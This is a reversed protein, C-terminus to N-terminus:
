RISNEIKQNSKVASSPQLMFFRLLPSEQGVKRSPPLHFPPFGFRWPMEMPPRPADLLFLAPDELFLWQFGIQCLCFEEPRTEEPPKNERPDKATHPAKSREQRVRSKEREFNEFNRSM